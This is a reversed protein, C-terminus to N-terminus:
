EKAKLMSTKRRYITTRRDMRRTEKETREKIELALQDWDLVLVKIIYFLFLVFNGIAFVLKIGIIQYGLYVGFIYCSPLVFPYMVALLVVVSYVQQALCILICQTATQLCDLACSLMDAWMNKAILDRLNQDQTFIQGIQRSFCTFIFPILIFISSSALIGIKAYRIAKAKNGEGMAEGVFIGVGYGLGIGLVFIMQDINYFVGMAAVEKEGLLAMLLNAIELTIWELALMFAGPIALKLFPGWSSFAEWSFSQFSQECVHRFKIYLWILILNTVYLVVKSMAAGIYGLELYNIFYYCWFPHAAMSIIQCVVQPLLVEHCYLFKRTIEFQPVLFLMPFNYGAAMSAHYALRPKIGILLLIPYALYQCLWCPVAAIKMIVSARNYIHGCLAYQKQGLTQPIFTDMASAMGMLESYGFLNLWMLGMSFAALYIAHPLNGLYLICFTDVWIEIFYSSANPFGVKFVNGIVTCVGDNESTHSGPSSVPNSEVHSSNLLSDSVHKTDNAKDTM